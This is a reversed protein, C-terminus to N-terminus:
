RLYKKVAANHEELTRSFITKGDETSLYYWFDTNQPNIAANIAEWGPNSISGQPLGKYLYTNYLSKIKLDALTLSHDQPKWEPNLTKWAYVVTADVQLLMDNELRKWLVGSVIKRDAEDPVEKEIISALKILDALSKPSSAIEPPLKKYAKEEFNALMKEMIEKADTDQSFRYTDPFLFGELSVIHDVPLFSFKGSFEEPKQALEVLSGAKILNFDSLRKDTEYVTFGEPIIVAIDEPGHTLRNVLSVVSYRGFFDYVGSRLEGANGSLLVYIKFISSSGLIGKEELLNSIELFGKNEEIVVNTEPVEFVEYFDKVVFVAWVFVPLLCFLLILGLGIKEKEMFVKMEAETLIPVKAMNYFNDIVM